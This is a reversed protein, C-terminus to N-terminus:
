RCEGVYLETDYEIRVVGERAHREFIADLEELMPERAPDGERPTYSSSLLRGRIGERDHAQAHPFSRVEVEGGYFDRIQAPDINRHNVKGYDTGFRRLLAEYERLFPTSAERRVNWVLAVLGGVRLIRQFEVRAAERDFWHFAQAATVLDVSGEALGTAEASGAVSRFRAERGLRAEAAARMEANPEVAAVTAGSRLLLASFIGTGSGIDAVRSGPGVGAAQLAALVAEPYDPRTRVYDAVRDSFRSRPDPSPFRTPDTM